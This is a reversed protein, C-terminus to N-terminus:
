PASSFAAAISRGELNAPLSLGLVYCVTACTDETRVLLDAVQTLDYGHKVGPGSIIWPITRSREDEMVHTKGAGGHDSSIIILTSARLGTEDLATFIRGIAQDVRGIAALQEASGWGFDHGVEDVEPLFVGMVEPRLQHIIRVADTTVAVDSKDTEAPIRVYDLSGPQNLPTFKSKGTVLATSYGAEHARAFLTPVAPYVPEKFPLPDNWLIKHRRPTAGTLMSVHSPLTNALPTTRAWMTYSGQAMLRRLVPAEALLLRDPRLGDVAIILVHEIAPIPRTPKAAPVPTQAASAGAMAALLIGLLFRKM